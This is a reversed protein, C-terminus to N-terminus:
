YFSYPDRLNKARYFLGIPLENCFQGPNISGEYENSYITKGEKSDSTEGSKVFKIKLRLKTKFSGVYAPTKLEWYSKSTLTKDRFGNGCRATNVMSIDRWVGDKDLAQTYAFLRGDYVKVEVDEKTNNALVVSYFLYKHSPNDSEFDLTDMKNTNVKFNLVDKKLENEILSFDKEEDDAYFYSYNIYDINYDLVPYDEKTKWLIKGKKNIYSLEGNIDVAFVGNRYYHINDFIPETIYTDDIRALGYLTRGDIEENAYFFFGEDMGQIKIDEFKPPIKYVGNTDILGWKDESKVSAYDNEYFSSSMILDFSHSGVKEMQTNIMYLKDDDKRKVFARHNYFNSVSKILKDNLVIEGKLNIYGKHTNNHDKDEIIEDFRNRKNSITIPALGNQFYGNFNENEALMIKFFYKGNTDVPGSYDSYFVDAECSKNITIAVGNHFELFNCFSDFPILVNGATDILSYNIGWQFGDTIKGDLNFVVYTGEHYDAIGDYITDIILQETIPNWIGAKGSASEIIYNEDTSRYLSFIKSEITKIEGNSKYIYISKNKIKANAIGNLFGSAFDFQPKIVYEGKLDIFGYLGNERVAALGESFEGGVIFKPEIVVAGESNIYGVNGKEIIRFLTEEQGFSVMSVLLLQIILIFKLKM